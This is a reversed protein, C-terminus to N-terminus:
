GDLQGINIIIQLYFAVISFKVGIDAIIPPAKIPREAM